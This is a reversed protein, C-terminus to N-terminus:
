SAEKVVRRPGLVRASLDSLGNMLVFVAGLFLVFLHIMPSDRHLVSDIIGSGMGPISFVREVIAAGAVTFGINQLFSPTIGIAARPM